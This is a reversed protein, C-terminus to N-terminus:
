GRKMLVHARSLFENRIAPAVWVAVCFAVLVALLIWALRVLETAEQPMLFVFGAMVGVVAVSPLGFDNAVWSILEGRFIKRHMLILGFVIYGVNLLLWISAAGLVGYSKVALFLAPLLLLIAVVNMGIALRTWGHAMQLAFPLNMMGNLATGLILLSLIPATNRVVAEDRVWLQLLEDSFFSVALAVPMVLVTMMQCGKHYLDRLEILNQNALLQTFRPYLASFLPGIIMYLGVAVTSALSYYAFTELTVMKSLIAKDMQVLISSLVAIVGMGAAFRWLRSFISFQCRPHDTAKPLRRWLSLALVLIGCASILLQWLFFATIESSVWWLVLVVGGSRLTEVAVKIVNLLVQHQLGLLGGGYFGYPMRLAIMLGMLVIAQHVTEISLQEVNLWNSAIWPAMLIVVLMIALAIGWYAVELTRVLDRMEQGNDTSVSLRALERSVTATLGMDLVAFLAQLTVYFGVLGYSEMGMFHIYLPIFAISVLAVWINGILNAAINKRVLSMRQM